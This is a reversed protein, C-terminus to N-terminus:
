YGLKSDYYTEKFDEGRLIHQCYKELQEKILSPLQMGVEESVPLEVTFRKAVEKTCFSSGTFTFGKRRSENYIRFEFLGLEIGNISGPEAIVEFDITDDINSYIIGIIPDSINTKVRLNFDFDKLYDTLVPLEQYFVEFLQAAKNLM